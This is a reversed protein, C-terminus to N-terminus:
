LAHVAHLAELLAGRARNLAPDDRRRPQPQSVTLDLRIPEGESGLVLVRDSLFLAEDLDHTVLLVTTAHVAALRLLLDQLKMRTFADVASFPEDLLLLRPNRLLGRALAARQAQGGSLSKPLADAHGELGVEHILAQVRPEGVRRPKADFGINAAVDLWPLLRPEQFILGIDPSWGRVPQGALRIEGDFRTELGAILRLLTSKGCGSAGVLSVIQGSAIQLNLGRLVTRAGYAQHRIRVDLLPADDM